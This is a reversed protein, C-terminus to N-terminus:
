VGGIEITFHGIQILCLQLEVNVILVRTVTIEPQEGPIWEIHRATVFHGGNTAIAGVVIATHVNEPLRLTFLM